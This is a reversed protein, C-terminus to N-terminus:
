GAGVLAIVVGEAGTTVAIGLEEYGGVLVGRREPSWWMGDLCAAVSAAQCEAAAAPLAGYGAARTQSEVPPLPEGAQLAKLRARAVVDLNTGMTAPEEGYWRWLAGLLDRVQADLADGRADDLIPPEEPTPVGVYLPVTAVVGRDDRAQLLWEGAVDFTLRADIPRVDGDPDAIVFRAGAVSISEGVGLERPVRGIDGRRDGVLLVWLDGEDDRARVLGVDHGEAARARAHASLEAPVEGAPTRAVAREIVPYPYAALVARWRLAYADVPKDALLDLAVGAATGALAEDWGAGGLASAVLPDTPAAAVHAYVTARPAPLRPNGPDVAEPPPAPKACAALLLLM